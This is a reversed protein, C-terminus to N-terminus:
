GILKLLNQPIQNAQALVSISAQLRVQATAFQTSEDAVDVDLFDSRAAETNQISTTISASAFDFRSQLAGITARRAVVTNLAIDLVESAQQGGAATGIDLTVVTGTADKYISTTASSQLALQISDAAVTGVQFNLGGTGSAGVNFLSGLAATLSDVESQNELNITGTIGTLTIVLQEGTTNGVADRGLLTITDGAVLSDDAGGIDTASYTTGNIVVSLSNATDAGAIGTFAGIDGLTGNTADFQYSTLEVTGSFGDLVTGTVNSATVSSVARDQVINVTSFATDLSTALADAATSDNISGTANLEIAFTSGSGDQATFTLSTPDTIAGGDAAATLVASNYVTGGVVVAFTATEAGGANENFSTTFFGSITGQFDNDVAGGFTFVDNLVGGLTGSHTIDGVAAPDSVTVNADGAISGDLLNIGNFTTYTVIRNIESVLNQFEQNLFARENDSVTGTNAQVALSKQRSLIDTINQLGGDAISLLSSAQSASTLVTRLTSVTTSLTTGIALGSVDDSAKIIAKGSSLKAISSESQVNASNLNQQAFLAASNSIIGVM